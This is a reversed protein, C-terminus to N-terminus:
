IIKKQEHSDDFLLLSHCSKLYKNLSARDNVVTNHLQQCPVTKWDSKMRLHTDPLM